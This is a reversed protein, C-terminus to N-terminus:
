QRFGLQRLLPNTDWFTPLWFPARVLEQNESSMLESFHSRSEHAIDWGEPAEESDIGVSCTTLVTLLPRLTMMLTALNKTTYCVLVPFNKFINKHGIGKNRREVCLCHM